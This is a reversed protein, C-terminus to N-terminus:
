RAGDKQRQRMTVPFLPNSNTSKLNKPVKEMMQNNLAQHLDVKMETSSAIASKTEIDSLVIPEFSMPQLTLWREMVALSLAILIRFKKNRVLSLSIKMM